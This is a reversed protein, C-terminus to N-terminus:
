QTHMTRTSMPSALTLYLPQKAHWSAVRTHPPPASVPPTSPPTACRKGIRKRVWLPSPVLSNMRRCRWHWHPDLCVIWVTWGVLVLVLVLVLLVWAVLVVLVLWRRVWRSAM